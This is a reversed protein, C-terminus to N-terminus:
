AKNKNNKKKKKQDRIQDTWYRNENYLFNSKGKLEEQLYKSKINTDSSLYLTFLYETLSIAKCIPAKFYDTCQITLLHLNFEILHILM